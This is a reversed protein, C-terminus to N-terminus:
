QSSYTEEYKLSTKDANHGWYWMSMEILVGGVNGVYRLM